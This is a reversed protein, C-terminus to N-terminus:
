PDGPQPCSGRQDSDPQWERCTVFDWNEAIFNHLGGNEIRGIINSTEMKKDNTNLVIAWLWGIFLNIYKEEYPKIGEEGIVYGDKM